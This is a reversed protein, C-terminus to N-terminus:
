GNAPKGYPITEKNLAWAVLQACNSRFFYRNPNSAPPLRGGAMICDHSRCLRRFQM